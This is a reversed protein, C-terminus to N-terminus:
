AIWLFYLGVDLIIVGSAIEIVPSWRGFSQLRKILGTFTGALVVPVGRGLAYVFLLAAGYLLAGQAMVYTLIAALVPTACQSAVLGSVLGLGMAGPVGRFPIRERLRGGFALAPIELKTLMQLAILICVGAVLYYWFRSTGGVLGGVLTAAVGLLVFTIALGVAFTLSLTFARRRSIQTSGGVYGMVLPIMALNCPGISTVIGGLFALMYAIAPGDKLLNDGLDLASSGSLAQLSERLISAEMVGSVTQGEGTRDIFTLTPIYRIGARQLLSANLSDYVDVEVLGVSGAFDPYVENVIETMRICSDCTNSHFFALFPKRDTLFQDFQAEPLMGTEAIPSLSADSSAAHAKYLLVGGVLLLVGILVAVRTKNPISIPIM